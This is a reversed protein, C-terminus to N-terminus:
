FHKNCHIFKLKEFTKDSLRYCDPRFIRGANSFLREVPVSSVPVGLNTCAITSLTPFKAKNSNWYELPDLKQDVVPEDLYKAVEREHSTMRTHKVHDEGM